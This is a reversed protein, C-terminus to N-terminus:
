DPEAETGSYLRRRVSVLHTEARRRRVKKVCERENGGWSDGMKYM